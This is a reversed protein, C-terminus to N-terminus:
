NVFFPRLVKFDKHSLCDHSDVLHQLFVLCDVHFHIFEDLNFSGHDLHSLGAENLWSKIEEINGFADNEREEHSIGEDVSM